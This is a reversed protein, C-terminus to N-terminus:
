TKVNAAKSIETEAELVSLSSNTGAGTGVGGGGDNSKGFTVMSLAELIVTDPILEPAQKETCNWAANLEKTPPEAMKEPM